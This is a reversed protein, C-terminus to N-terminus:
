QNRTKCYGWVDAAGNYGAFGAYICRDDAAIRYIWEYDGIKQKRNGKKHWPHRRGLIHWANNKDLYWVSAPIDRGGTGVILTNKYGKLYNFITSRYMLDPLNKGIRYWIKGDYAWVSSTAVSFRPRELSALLMGRYVTLDEVYHIHPNRWSRNRGMGGVKEFSMGDYTWVTAGYQQRSWTGIYLKRGHVQLDYVGHYSRHKWNSVSSWKNGCFRVLGANGMVDENSMGVYLCGKFLAMSYAIQYVGHRWDKQSGILRLGKNDKVWVEASGKKHQSGLGFYIKGKNFLMSNVRMSKEWAAIRKWKGKSYKWVEACGNRNGGLGVVLDGHVVVMSRVMSCFDKWPKNKSIHVWEREFYVRDSEILRLKKWSDLVSYSLSELGKEMELKLRQLRNELTRNEEILKRYYKDQKDAIIVITIALSVLICVHFISIVIKKNIRM